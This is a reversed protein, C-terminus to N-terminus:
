TMVNLQYDKGIRKEKGCKKKQKRKKGRDNEIEDLRLIDRDRGLAAAYPSTYMLQAERERYHM